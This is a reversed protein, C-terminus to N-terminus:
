TCIIITLDCRIGNSKGEVLSPLVFLRNYVRCFACFLLPDVFSYSDMILGCVTKDQKGYHIAFDSFNERSLTITFVKLCIYLAAERTTGRVSLVRVCM